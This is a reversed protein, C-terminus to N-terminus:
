IPVITRESEGLGNLIMAKVVQGPSIIEQPHTGLKRDIQQVLEMEDCIGAIIGCHDIDQVRIDSARFNEMRKFYRIKRDYRRFTPEMWRDCLFLM